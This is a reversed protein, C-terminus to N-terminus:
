ASDRRPGGVETRPELSRHKLEAEVADQDWNRRAYCIRTIYLKDDPQCNIHAMLLTDGFALYCQKGADRNWPSCRRGPNPRAPPREGAANLTVAGRSSGFRHNTVTCFELKPKISVFVDFPTLSNARALIEPPM